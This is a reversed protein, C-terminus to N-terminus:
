SQKASLCIDPIFGQWTTRWEQKVISILTSNLKTILHQNQTMAQDNETMKLVLQIIYTRIGLKQQEPM